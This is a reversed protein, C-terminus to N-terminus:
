RSPEKPELPAYLDRGTAQFARIGDDMAVTLIAPAAALEDPPPRPQGKKQAIWQAYSNGIALAHDWAILTAATAAERHELSEFARALTQTTLMQSYRDQLRVFTALAEALLAVAQLPEGHALADRALGLHAGAVSFAPDIREYRELADLHLLFAQAPEGRVRALDGLRALTNAEGLRAGIAKFTPLAKGYAGEAEELRSTRVYLDGLAKQTNAEGLRDGIAKFTPLAKGYAGEAEELRSTRVYLDGLAKLVAATPGGESREEVSRRAKEVTPIAAEALGAYRMISGFADAATAIQGALDEAQSEMSAAEAKPLRDLLAELNAAERAGQDMAERAGPTGIRKKLEVLWAALARLSKELLEAQREAGLLEEARKRAYARVPGPLELRKEPGSEEVLCKRLLTARQEEGEEGFVQAVLAGPLGAPLYGFWAFMEAAGRLRRSTLLPKFSLNLSSTLRERRTREDQDAAEDEEEDFGDEQVAEDGDKELRKRITALSLTFTQRAVLVLSQAHGDLWALLKTLEPSGRDEERLRDGAVELFVRRAVDPNLKGLALVAEEAAELAGLAERSTVLLRLGPCLRLLTDVLARFLGVPKGRLPTEANDLVVLARAEGIQRALSADEACRSPDLGFAFAVQARVAEVRSVGNLGVWLGREVGLGATALMAQRAVALGLSTKGMGGMGTVTVLRGARLRELSWAIEDERGRFYAKPEPAGELLGPHGPLSALPAGRSEAVREPVVVRPARGEGGRPRAYYVPAAWQLDLEPLASRGESVAHALDGRRLAELTAALITETGEAKLAAHSAVVAAVDGYDPHLLAAAVSGAEAHERASYCSWLLAVDVQGRKFMRAVDRAPVPEGPDNPYTAHGEQHLWVAGGGADGHAIVSAITVGGQQALAEELSARTANQCPPRMRFGLRDAAQHAGREHATRLETTLRENGPVVPNAWAVLVARDVSLEAARPALDRLTRVLTAGPARFLFGDRDALLEFPIEAIVSAEAAPLELELRLPQRAEQRARRIHEWLARVNSDSLVRDLLYRGFSLGEEHTTGYGNLFAGLFAAVSRGLGPIEQGRLGLFANGSGDRAGAGRREEDILEIDFAGERLAEERAREIRLRVRYPPTALRAKAEDAMRM